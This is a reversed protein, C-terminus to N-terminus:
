RVDDRGEVGTNPDVNMRRMVRSGAATVGIMVLAIALILWDGRVAAFVALAAFALAMALYFLPAAAGSRTFRRILLYM